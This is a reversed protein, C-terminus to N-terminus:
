EDRAGQGGQLSKWIARSAAALALRADIAILADFQKELELVRNMEDITFHVVKEHEVGSAKTVAVRMATMIDPSGQNSFLISEVRHFQSAVRSLEDGLLDEEADHWKSPPKLALYSGVSELWDSEALNDDMLRLCFARLKPENVSLVIQEVRSALTTRFHQFSGPLGFEKQLRDRMRELLDPYAARLEDLASKLAKVFPKAQSSVARPSFPEFGCATPLEAFVLRVPERANLIAHRVALARQSLRKTNLAYPPLQAVFVCLPKVVDLLDIRSLESRELELVTILKDLLKARVGAIRCYQIEFREPAKSLVLMTEGTMERLFTGDKYFAIDKDNAVAFATLLLPMIGDRVGYPARRMEEFLSAVNVRDDPRERVIERIRRFAPLVHCKDARHHPEAIRWHGGQERHLGTQKLVSLYVSMEPPKKEPNM